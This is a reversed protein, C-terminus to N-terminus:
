SSWLQNLHDYKNLMHMLKFLHTLKILFVSKFHKNFLTNILKFLNKRIVYYDRHPVHICIINSLVLWFIYNSLNPWDGSIALPDKNM